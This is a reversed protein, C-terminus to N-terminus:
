FKVKLTISARIDSGGMPGGGASVTPGITANEGLNLALPDTNDEAIAPPPAPSAGVVTACVAIEDANAPECPQPTPLVMRLTGDEEIMTVIGREDTVAAGVEAAPEDLIIPIREGDAM